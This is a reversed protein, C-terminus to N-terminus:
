KVDVPDTEAGIMRRNGGQVRRREQGPDFQKGVTGTAQGHQALGEDFLVGIALSKRSM